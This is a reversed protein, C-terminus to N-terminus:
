DGSAFTSQAVHDDGNFDHPTPRMQANRGALPRSDTTPRFRSSRELLFLQERVYMPRKRLNRSGRFANYTMEMVRVKGHRALLETFAERSIFGESNYSILIHSADTHDILDELAAAAERRRNYRSRQWDTPIGAVDSIRQPERNAVILNLMFYNSGYPHQNYPPDFYALDLGKLQRVLVNADAQCVRVACEFRSFLPFPLEVPGLIRRLADRNKGGYCGIGRDDKYFGKFVGSTNAHISAESLLPALLFSRLGHPAQDILWRLSDIRMANDVTYFAREGPQISRDDAPAYLRRVFGDRVPLAAASKVIREHWDRLEDFPVSSRNTLYCEAIVRAYEELDNSILESAYQKFLRSVVGSGAFADLIRLRPSGLRRSVYLVAQQIPDLLSRKNGICTILQRSLYDRDEALTTSSSTGGVTVASETTSM